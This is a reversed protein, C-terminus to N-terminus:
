VRYWDFEKEDHAGPTYLSRTISLERFLYRLHTLVAVVLFGRLLWKWKSSATRSPTVVVISYPVGM